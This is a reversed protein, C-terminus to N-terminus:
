VHIVYGFGLAYLSIARTAAFRHQKFQWVIGVWGVGLAKGQQDQTIRTHRAVTAGQLRGLRGGHVPWLLWGCAQGIGIVLLM